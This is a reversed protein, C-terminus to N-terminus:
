QDNTQSHALHERLRKLARDKLSFVARLTMGFQEAIEEYSSEAVYRATLVDAYRRLPNSSRSWDDLIDLALEFDLGNQSEFHIQCRDADAALADLAFDENERTLTPRRARKRYYDIMLNRLSKAMFGRLANLSQARWFQSDPSGLVRIFLDNVAATYDVSTTSHEREFSARLTARLHADVLTLLRHELAQREPADAQHYAALFAVLERDADPNSQSPTSTVTPKGQNAPQAPTQDLARALPETTHGVIRARVFRRRGSPTRRPVLIPIAPASRVPGDVLSHSGSMRATRSAPPASASIATGTARPGTTATRRGAIDTLRVSHMAGLREPWNRGPDVVPSSTTGTGSTVCEKRAALRSSGRHGRHHLLSTM